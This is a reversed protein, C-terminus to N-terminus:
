SLSSGPTLCPDRRDSRFFRAETEKVDQGFVVGIIVVYKATDPIKAPILIPILNSQLGVKSSEDTGVLSGLVPMGEYM